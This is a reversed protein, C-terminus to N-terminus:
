PLGLFDFNSLDLFWPILMHQPLEFVSGQFLCTERSAGLFRCIACGTLWFSLMNRSATGVFNLFCLSELSKCPKLTRNLSDPSNQYKTNKKSQKSSHTIIRRTKNIAPAGEAHVDTKQLMCLYLSVDSNHLGLSYRCLLCEYVLPTPEPPPPPSCSFLTYIRIYVCMCM